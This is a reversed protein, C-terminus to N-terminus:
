AARRLVLLAVAGTQKAEVLELSSLDVHDGFLRKGAGLVVPYVMLHLEDALDRALLGQALQASGAVLIDGEFRGKLDATIEGLDGTV